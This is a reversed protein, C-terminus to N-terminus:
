LRTGFSKVSTLRYVFRLIMRREEEEKM